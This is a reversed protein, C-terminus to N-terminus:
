TSSFARTISSFAFSISRCGGDDFGREIEEIINRIVGGPQVHEFLLLRLSRIDNLTGQEGPLADVGERRNVCLGFLLM